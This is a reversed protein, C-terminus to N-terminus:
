PGLARRARAIAPDELGTRELFAIAPGVATRERARAASELLVRLDAPEKQVGFNAVALDLAGPPDREVELAFRAEERRHVTDGRLRSADHRSRLEGVWRDRETAKTRDAAIALRLLLGDNAEKGALLALVEAPRDLDLLVDALAGEVYADGPSAALAARLDREAGVLDGLRVKYDALSSRAWALVGGSTSPAAAAVAADVTAIAEHAHGTLSLVTAHCVAYVLPPALPRVRACSEDAKAHEGRVTLVTAHTLWAQGDEPARALAADLDRLAGDFDHLSQRITARLVLIEPPADGDGVFPAIAAEARGLLRPDGSARAAEINQRAVRTARALARPDHRDAGTLASLEKAAGRTAGPPRVYVVADAAPRSAGDALASTPAPRFALGVSVVAAVAVLVVLVRKKWSAM